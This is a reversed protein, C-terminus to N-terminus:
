TSVPQDDSPAITFLCRPLVVQRHHCNAAYAVPLVFAACILMTIKRAKNLSWRTKM